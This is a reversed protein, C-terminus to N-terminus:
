RRTTTSMMAARAANTGGALLQAVAAAIPLGTTQEFWSFGPSPNVEFCVIRGDGALKLDIGAFPLGLDTALRVCRETVDDDLAYPVLVADSGVQRRAYRYDLATTTVEAAYARDGVVHVRVDPGPIREQFQVPCWRIRELREADAVPDFPTVISRVGSSSKYVTGAHAHRGAFEIAEAPDDTILTDPTSFGHAVIAQAQYPKSSNSAMASLRNLVQLPRDRGLVETLATMSDFLERAHRLEPGDDRLDRLEPVLEPEIPRVYVGDIRDFPVRRGDAELWGDIGGPLHGGVEIAVKQREPSRVDMFLVDAHRRALAALVLATPSDSDAGWVVVTV